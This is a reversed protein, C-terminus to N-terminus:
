TFHTDVLSPLRMRNPSGVYTPWRCFHTHITSQSNEKPSWPFGRDAMPFPLLFGVGLWFDVTQVVPGQKEEM